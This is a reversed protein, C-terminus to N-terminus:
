SASRCPFTVGTPIVVPTLLQPLPPAGRAVVIVIAAGIIAMLARLLGRHPGNISTLVLLVLATVGAAALLASHTVLAFHATVLYGLSLVLLLSTRVAPSM